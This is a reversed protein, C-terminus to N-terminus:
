RGRAAAHRQGGTSPDKELAAAQREHEGADLAAADFAPIAEHNELEANGAGAADAKPLSAVLALPVEDAICGAELSASRREDPVHSRYAALERFAARGGLYPAPRPRAACEPSAKEALNTGRICGTQLAPTPRM